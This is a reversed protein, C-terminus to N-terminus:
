TLVHVMFAGMLAPFSSFSDVNCCRTGSRGAEEEECCYAAESYTTAPMGWSFRQVEAIGLNLVQYELAETPYIELM